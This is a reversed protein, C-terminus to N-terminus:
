QYLNDIVSDNVNGMHVNSDTYPALTPQMETPGGKTNYPPPAVAPSATVPSRNTPALVLLEADLQTSEVLWWKQRNLHDKTRAAEHLHTYTVEAQKGLWIATPVGEPNYQWQSLM